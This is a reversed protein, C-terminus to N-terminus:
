RSCRGSLAYVVRGIAERYPTWPHQDGSHFVPAPWIDFGVRRFCSEARAMHWDDTVLIWIQGFKPDVLEATFRANQATDASRGEWVIRQKPIGVRELISVPGPPSERGTYILKADPYAHALAIAQSVRSNPFASPELNPNQLFKSLGGGLIIIGAPSLPKENRSRGVASNQNYNASLSYTLLIVLAIGLFYVIRKRM